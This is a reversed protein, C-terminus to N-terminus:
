NCNPCVGGLQTAKKGWNALLIAYDSSSVRYKALSGEFKHDFDACMCLSDARMQTAKKGWCQSLKAYDSSAVRYQALSGEFKCDADGKCQYPCPTPCAQSTYQGCWCCPKWVTVFENYQITYCDWCPFCEPFSVKGASVLGRAVLTPTIQNGDELVIGRRTTNVSIQLNCDMAPRPPIVWLRCLTGSAPPKNADGSYLSGLELIVRHTGIGSGDADADAAPAIPYYNSDAWDPNEPNIVDRFKGPFIGYGTKGGTLASSEGFNYDGIGSFYFGNDINVEVAFARVREGADCTYNIDLVNCQRAASYFGASSSPVEQIARITVTAMAQAALLLIILLPIIKRM